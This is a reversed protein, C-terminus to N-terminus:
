DPSKRDSQLLFRFRPNRGQAVLAPRDGYENVLRQYHKRADAQGLKEYCLGIHLLATAAVPRNKRFDKLIGEYVKIAKGLDGKM